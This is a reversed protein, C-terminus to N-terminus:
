FDEKSCTSFISQYRGKKQLEPQM